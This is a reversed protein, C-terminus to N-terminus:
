RPHVPIDNERCLKRYIASTVANTAYRQNSNIKIVPGSNLLPGHNQDHRDAHNPHIGHANDASILM